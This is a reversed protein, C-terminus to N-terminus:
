FLYSKMCFVSGGSKMFESTDVEIVEFGAGRLSRNVRDLGRQIVVYRGLFPTANCAMHDAEYEDVEIVRNFVRRIADRGNAAFAGPYFLASHEDLPCLCTDLHYFRETQLRLPIVPAQFIKSIEGYVEKSTRFGYGGWILRRGPHWLADGSGEFLGPTEIPVLRYGNSRFWDAHAGVEKKRSDFRMHSLVCVRQGAADLGTFVPNACFVMDECGPLPADTRVEIGIREFADKIARWERRALVPDVHGQQDKMFPNKVDVVDFWEPPCMLVARPLPMTDLQEFHLQDALTNATIVM